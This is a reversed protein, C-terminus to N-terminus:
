AKKRARKAPAKKAGGKLAALEADVTSARRMEDIERDVSANTRASATDETAFETRKEMQSVRNLRKEATSAGADSCGSKDADAASQAKAQERTEERKAELEKVAEDIEKLDAKAKAIDDKGSAIAERCDERAMLAQRALDERDHDMAAKAKDGWDAERMENQTLTAKLRKLNRETKTREGELAIIAEEIERQLQHLMKASSSMSDLASTVNSSILEKVQIAVRLM